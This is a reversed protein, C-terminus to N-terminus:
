TTPGGFQMERFQQRPRDFLCEINRPEGHRNALCRWTVPHVAPLPEGAEIADELGQPMKCMFASTVENGIRGSDRFANGINVAQGGAANKTLNSIAWLTVGRDRALDRLDQGIQDVDVVRSGTPAAPQVAQLYDAVVIANGGAVAESRIDAATFPTELVEFRELLPEIAATAREYEEATAGRIPDGVMMIKTLEVGSVAAMARKVITPPDMEGLAYLLHADPNAILQHLATFLVFASKGEKPRAAVGIMDGRGPGGFPFADDIFKLGTPLTRVRMAAPDLSVESLKIARRINGDGVIADAEAIVVGPDGALRDELALAFPKLDGLTFEDARASAVFRDVIRARAAPTHRVREDAATAVFMATIPDPMIAPDVARADFGEILCAAAVTVAEAPSLTSSKFGAAIRDAIM